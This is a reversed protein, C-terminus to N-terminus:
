ICSRKINGTKTCSKRGSGYITKECIGSFKRRNSDNTYAYVSEFGHYIRLGIGRVVGSNVNEVIGNLM